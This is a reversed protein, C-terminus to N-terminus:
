PWLHLPELKGRRLQRYAEIAGGVTKANISIQQALFGKHEITEVIIDDEGIRYEGDSQSSGFVIDRLTVSHVFKPPIEGPTTDTPNLPDAAYELVAYAQPHSSCILIRYAERYVGPGTLFTRGQDWTDLLERVATTLDNGSPIGTLRVRLM